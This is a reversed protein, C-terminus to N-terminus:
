MAHVNPAPLAFHFTPYLWMRRHTTKQIRFGVNRLTEEVFAGSLEYGVGGNLVFDHLKNFVVLLSDAEIDKLVLRGGTPMRKYITKLLRLQRSTPTHHLVDILFFVDYTSLNDPLQEPGCHRIDIDLGTVNRGYEVLLLRARDACASSTDVAGIRTADSYHAALLCFAGSGCGIDFVSDSDVWELLDEFPCIAPRYVLKLWDLLSTNPAASRLFRVLTRTDPM